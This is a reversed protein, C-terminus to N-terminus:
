GTLITVTAAGVMARRTTTRMVLRDGVVVVERRTRRMVETFPELTGTPVESRRTRRMVETFVADVDVRGVFRSVEEVVGVMVERRTRLVPLTWVGVM